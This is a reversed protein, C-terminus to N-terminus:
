AASRETLPRVDAGPAGSTLTGDVSLDALTLDPYFGETACVEDILAELRDYREPNWRLDDSWAAM